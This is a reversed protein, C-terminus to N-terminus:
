SNGDLVERVRAALVELSFPKILITERSDTVSHRLVADETYGSMFLIRLGPKKEKLKDGLIRGNDGPMIVDALLLSINGEHQEFLVMAQQANEAELVGYGLLELQIRTVERIAHEDEVLLITEAGGVLGAPRRHREVSPEGEVRPLYIEFITGDGPESEVWIYGDSQKVIGYVTALGLGTGHGVSKTTFFPEFIHALVDKSMGIGSDTVALKIFEGPTSGIHRKVFEQDLSVNSTQIFLRGGTPMADRANVVLNMLVQEIQGPDAQVSGLNPELSLTVRVNGGILRQTMKHFQQVTVNLNLVVPQLIQKRSFALLQRTIATASDVAMRMKGLYKKYIEAEPVKESLLELNGLIVGLANNFDHAVGGALQGIAEMKQAQRLQAEMLKRDTVDRCLGLYRVPHGADDFVIKGSVEVWRVEGNPRILRHDYHMPEGALLLACRESVLSRDDPHTCRLVDELTPQPSDPPLGFIEFVHPSWVRKGSPLEVDFIGIDAGLQALRLREENLRLAEEAQKRETIDIVIGTMRSPQSQDDLRHQGRVRIWRVEGDARRIRAEFECTGTTVSAKFKKDVKARDQPLVHALFMEYTWEPLTSKYGFIQDHRLSRSALHNKLDLEWEGLDSAAVASDLRQISKLLQADADKRALMKAVHSSINELIQLHTEDYARPDTYHQVVMVGITKKEIKLPVGLWVATPKGFPVIEGRRQLERELARDLLLPKGSHLVYETRGKGSKRHTLPLDVVDVYYPFELEDNKEDYLAIYFSDAPVVTRIIQHVSQYLDHLTQAQDAAAAISFLAIRLDEQRKRDTVDLHSGMMRTPTGSADRLVDGQAYIWRYSGDKHRLRFEAEYRGKPHALFEDLKQLTPELDDPHVRSRWEEYNDPIEDEVYGIQSKWERSYHARKTRLDWDWLGINGAQVSLKLRTESERLAEEARKSETIDHAIGFTGILEGHRNEVRGTRLFIPFDTGDRRSRRCEGKWGGASTTSTRIENSLNPPNNTSLLVSGIFRGVVENERFGTARLLSQNVYVIRDSADGIVIMDPSNEVVQALRTTGEETRKRESIDLKIAVFHTIEGAANKVPTITIEEQYLSGDKRRNVLEGRWKQGSLITEWMNKFFSVSQHGSNLINTSKGIVEDRTYGSLQEFAENVWIVTGDRRSIVIANAAAKLAAVLLQFLDEALPASRPGSGKSRVKRM